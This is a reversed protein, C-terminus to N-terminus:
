SQLLLVVLKEQLLTYGIPPEWQSTSRHKKTSNCSRCCAVLNWPVNPGQQCLPVVHDLTKRREDTFPAECYFCTTAPGLIARVMAGTLLGASRRRARYNQSWAKAKDPNANLYVRVNRKFAVKNEQYYRKNYETKYQVNADAWKQNAALMRRRTKPNARRKAAAKREQEKRHELNDLRKARQAASMCTKCQKRRGDLYGPAKAFGELDKTEGCKVCTKNPM